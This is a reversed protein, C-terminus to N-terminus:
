EPPDVSQVGPNVSSTRAAGVAILATCSQIDCPDAGSSEEFTARFQGNVSDFGEEGFNLDAEVTLDFSCVGVNELLASFDAGLVSETITTSELFRSGSWTNDGADVVPAFIVSSDARQLQAQVEGQKSGVQMDSAPAANLVDVWVGVRAPDVGSCSAELVSSSDVRYTGVPSSCGMLLTLPAVLFLVRTM